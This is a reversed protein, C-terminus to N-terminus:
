AAAPPSFIFIAFIRQSPACALPEFEAGFAVGTVASDTPYHMDESEDFFLECFETVGALEDGIHIKGFLTGAYGNFVAITSLTGHEDFQLEVAGRGYHFSLGQREGHSVPAVSAMLWGDCQAVAEFLPGSTRDWRVARAFISRVQTLHVGLQFGAASDGPIIDAHLDITSM